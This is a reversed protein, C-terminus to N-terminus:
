KAFSRIKWVLGALADRDNALDVQAPMAPSLGVGIGGKAIIEKLRADSVSAQWAPDTYNRPKPDLAVAGPGDGVGTAGHCTECRAKFLEEGKAKVAALPEASAGSGGCSLALLATTAAFLLTTRFREM